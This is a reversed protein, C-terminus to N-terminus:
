PQGERGEPRASERCCKEHKDELYALLVQYTYEDLVVEEWGLSQLRRNLEELELAPDFRLTNAVCRILFPMLRNDVGKSTLRKHM